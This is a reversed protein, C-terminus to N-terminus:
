NDIMEQYYERSLKRLVGEVIYYIDSKQILKFIQSNEFHKYKFVM